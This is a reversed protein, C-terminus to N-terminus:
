TTHFNFFFELSVDGACVDGEYNWEVNFYSVTKEANVHSQVKPYETTDRVFVTENPAHVVAILGDTQIKVQISCSETTWHYSNFDKLFFDSKMVDKCSQHHLCQGSWGRSPGIRSPDCVEKGWDNCRDENGKYTLREGRYESLVDAWDPNSTPLRNSYTGCCTSIASPLKKNGCMAVTLSALHTFNLIYM